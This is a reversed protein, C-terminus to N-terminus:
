ESEDEITSAQLAHTSPQPGFVEDLDRPEQHGAADELQHQRLRFTRGRERDLTQLGPDAPRHGPLSRPVPERRLTPNQPEARRGELGESPLLEAKARVGSPDAVEGVPHELLGSWLGRSTSDSLRLSGRWDPKPPACANSPPNPRCPRGPPSCRGRRDRARPTEEAPAPM